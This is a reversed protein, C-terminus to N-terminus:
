SQMQRVGLDKTSGVQPDLHTSNRFTSVQPVSEVELVLFPYFTM